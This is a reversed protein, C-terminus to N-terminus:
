NYEAPYRDNKKKKLLRSGGLDVGVAVGKGSVVSQRGEITRGRLELQAELGGLRCYRTYKSLCRYHQHVSADVGVKWGRRRLLRILPEFVERKFVPEEVSDEWIRLSSDHFAIEGKRPHPASYDAGM